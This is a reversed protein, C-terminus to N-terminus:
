KLYNGTSDVDVVLEHILGNGGAVKGYRGKAQLADEASLDSFSEPM